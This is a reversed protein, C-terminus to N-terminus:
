AVLGLMKKNRHENIVRPLDAVAHVIELLTSEDMAIEGRAVDEETGVFLNILVFVFFFRNKNIYFNLDFDSIETQCSHDVVISDVRFATLRNRDSPLNTM